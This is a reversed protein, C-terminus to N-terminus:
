FAEAIIASKWLKFCHTLFITQSFIINQPHTVPTEPQRTQARTHATRVGWRKSWLVRHEHSQALSGMRPEEEKCCVGIARTAIQLKMTLTHQM